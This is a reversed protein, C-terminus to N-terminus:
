GEEREMITIVPEADDGSGMVAKLIKIEESDENGRIVPFLFESSNSRTHRMGVFLLWLCNWLWGSTQVDIPKDRGESPQISGTWVAHTLAVPVKFGVEKATSTVDILTGNDFMDARSADIMNEKFQNNM